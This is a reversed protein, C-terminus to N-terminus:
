GFDICTRGDRLMVDLNSFRHELANIPQHAQAMHEGGVVFFAVENEDVHAAGAIGAGRQHQALVNM